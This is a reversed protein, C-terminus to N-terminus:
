RVKSKLGDTSTAANYTGANRDPGARSRNEHTKNGKHTKTKWEIQERTWRKTVYPLFNVPVGGADKGARSSWDQHVYRVFDDPVGATMAQAVAEDESSLEPAPAPAGSAAPPPGGGGAVEDGFVDGFVGVPASADCKSHLQMANKDPPDPFKSKMARVSQGFKNIEIVLKNDAEYLRVLSAKVCEAISRDIHAERVRDLQLPYLMPRLMKASGHYRGFDDAKQILRTFFKEAEDSLSNVAASDTWDRLIRNPM